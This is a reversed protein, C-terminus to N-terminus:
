AVSALPSPRVPNHGEVLNAVKLLDDEDDQLHLVQALFQDDNPLHHGDHTSRPHVCFRGLVAEKEDVLVVNGSAGGGTRVHYRRGKSGIVPIYGHREMYQRQEPTLVSDLLSRARRRAKEQKAKRREEQALEEETPERPQYQYTQINSAGYGYVNWERWSDTASYQIFQTTATGTNWARWDDIVFPSNAVLTSGGTQRHSPDFIDWHQTTFNYTAVTTSNTSYASYLGNQTYTPSL